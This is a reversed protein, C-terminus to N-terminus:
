AVEHWEVSWGGALKPWYSITDDHEKYYSPIGILDPHESKIRGFEEPELRILPIGVNGKVACLVNKALLQGCLGRVVRFPWGQVNSM